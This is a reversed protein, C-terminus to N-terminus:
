SAACGSLVAQSDQKNSCIYSAEKPTKCLRFMSIPLIVCDIQSRFSLLLINTNAFSLANIRERKEERRKQTENDVKVLISADLNGQWTIQQM